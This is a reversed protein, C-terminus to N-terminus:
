NALTWGKDTAIKKEEPTMSDYTGIANRAGEAIADLTEEDISYKGM